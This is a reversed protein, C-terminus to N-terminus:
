LGEPKLAMTSSSIDLHDSTESSVPMESGDTLVMKHSLLADFHLKIRQAVSAVNFCANQNLKMGLIRQGRVVIFTAFMYITIADLM